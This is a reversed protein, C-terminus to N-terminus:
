LKIPRYPVALGQRKNRLQIQRGNGLNLPQIKRAMTRQEEEVLAPQPSPAEFGLILATRPDDVRRTAECIMRQSRRRLAHCGFHAESADSQFRFRAMDGQGVTLILCQFSQHGSSFLALMIRLEKLRPMPLLWREVPNSSM